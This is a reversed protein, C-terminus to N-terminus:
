GMSIFTPLPDRPRHIDTPTRATGTGVAPQSAIDGRALMSGDKATV